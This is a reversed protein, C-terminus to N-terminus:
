LIDTIGYGKAAAFMQGCACCVYLDKQVEALTDSDLSFGDASENKCHPCVIIEGYSWTGETTQRFGGNVAGLVEESLMLRKTKKETIGIKGIRKKIM